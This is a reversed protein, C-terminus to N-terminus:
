WIGTLQLIGILMIFPSLWTLLQGWRKRWEDNKAPDKSAPLIGRALLFAYSPNIREFAHSPRKEDPAKFVCRGFKSCDTYTNHHFGLFIEVM